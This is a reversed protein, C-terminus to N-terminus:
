RRSFRALYEMGSFQGIVKLINQFLKLVVVETKTLFSSNFVHILVVIDLVAKTSRGLKLCSSWKSADIFTM